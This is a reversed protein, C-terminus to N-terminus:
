KKENELSKNKITVWGDNSITANVDPYYGTQDIEKFFQVLQDKEEESFNFNPMSNIGSNVITKIYKEGKGEKSFVNTVDPGLYGGLGYIQHCSNCNNKLWIDEGKIAKDSLHIKKYASESTYIIFNYISFLGVLVSLVILYRSYNQM